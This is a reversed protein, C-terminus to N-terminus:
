PVTRKIKRELTEIECREVIKVSTWKETLVAVQARKMAEIRSNFYETDCDEACDLVVEYGLVKM